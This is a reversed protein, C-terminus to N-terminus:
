RVFHQSKARVCLTASKRSPHFKYMSDNLISTWKNPGYKRIGAQLFEDEQKSFAIKKRRKGPQCEITKVLENTQSPQPHNSPVENESSKFDVDTQKTINKSLLM